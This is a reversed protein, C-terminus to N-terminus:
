ESNILVSLILVLLFLPETWFYIWDASESLKSLPLFCSFYWQVCLHFFDNPAKGTRKINGLQLPVSGQQLDALANELGVIGNLTMLM